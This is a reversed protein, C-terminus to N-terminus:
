AVVGQFCLRSDVWRVNEQDIMIKQVAIDGITLPSSRLGYETEYIVVVSLEYDIDILGIEKVYQGWPYCFDLTMVGAVMLM